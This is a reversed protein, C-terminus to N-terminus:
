GWSKLRVVFSCHHNKAHWVEQSRQVETKITENSLILYLYLKRICCQCELVTKVEEKSGDSLYCCENEYYLFVFFVKFFIYVYINRVSVANVNYILVEKKGGDSLYCCQLYCYHFVILPLCFGKIKFFFALWQLRVMTNWKRMLYLNFKAGADNRLLIM